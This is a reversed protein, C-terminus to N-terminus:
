FRQDITRVPVNKQAAYDVLETLKGPTWDYPGPGNKIQHFVFIVPRDERIALDVYGKAEATTTDKTISIAALQYRDTTDLGCCLGLYAARGTEYQEATLRKVRDDYRGFPYAFHTVPQGTITQLTNKSQSLESRVQADSLTLLDPHTVTHSQIDHGRDALNRVEDASLHYKRGGTRLFDTTIYFTGCYGRRELIEAAKLDTYHGDDFTFIITGPGSGRLNGPCKSSMVAPDSAAEAAGAGVGALVGLGVFMVVVAFAGGM